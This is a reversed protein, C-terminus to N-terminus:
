MNDAQKMSAILKNLEEREEDTEAKVVFDEWAKDRASVYNGYPMRARKVIRYIYEVEDKSKTRQVKEWYTDTVQLGVIAVNDAVTAVYSEFSQSFTEETGSMAEVFQSNVLTKIGEAVRKRLDGEAIREAARRDKDSIDSKVYIFKQGKERVIDFEPAFAWRPVKSDSREVIVEEGVRTRRPPKETKVLSKKACSTVVFLSLLSVTLIVTMTTTKKKM